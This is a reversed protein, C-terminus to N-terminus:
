NEQILKLYLERMSEETMPLPNGRTGSAMSGKVLLELEDKTINFGKFDAPVGIADKLRSVFDVATEAAESINKYRRGALAEGIRAYRERVAPMNVRMSHDLLIGCALGHGIGKVAGLAPAMGHVLALGSNALCIGSLLAAFAMGERAKLNGGDKVATELCRGAHEIGCLALADTVPNRNKTTYSEILQCLADMGSAATQQPPLSLELEPDVLALKPLLMDSRISKKVCHVRSIIVSNKTAESGTGATTPIAVLPVPPRSVPLERGMGEIYDIVDGENTIMAAVAKAADIVSGGGIALVADCGNELAFRRGAEVDEVEPEGSAWCYAFFAAGSREVQGAARRLIGNREVSPSFIVMVKEGTLHRHLESLGGSKFIIKGSTSFEFEM